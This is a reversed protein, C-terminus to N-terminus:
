ERENAASKSKQTSGAVLMPLRAAGILGADSGLTARVIVTNRPGPQRGEAAITAQFVYSRARVEEMMAPAFADWSASVGGGIVYVPLNLTNILGALMMALARGARRFIEHAAEDGQMALAFLAKSGLDGSEKMARALGPATGAAVAEMAMRRLATASAYQEVCGRSGCGCAAGDPEVMIHGVEGAMGVAGHWIQGGLIIGGGIGTGLTIMCMDDVHRGAGMWKEGLAAANADNELIVRTGLRREIEQRVPYDAWGPLNPSEHLMGSELDIIGPVGVGIGLLSGSGKLRESLTRIAACMEEIVVDREPVVSANVRDLVQGGADVAAVRLNTGGLDVGIAFNM